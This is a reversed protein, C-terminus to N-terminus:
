RCEGNQLKIDDLAFYGMTNTGTVFEFAVYYYPLSKLTIKNKRWIKGTEDLGSKLTLLSVKDEKRREDGTRQYLSLTGVNDEILNYWFSLCRLGTYTMTPSKLISVDNPVVPVIKMYHGEPSMRTHDYLPNTASATDNSTWMWHTKGNSSETYGCMDTEFTCLNAHNCVGDKCVFQKFNIEYYIKDTIM